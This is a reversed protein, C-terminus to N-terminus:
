HTGRCADRAGLGQDAKGTEQSLLSKRLCYRYVTAAPLRGLHKWADQEREYGFWRVLFRLVGKEDWIHDMCREFVHDSGGPQLADPVAMQPREPRNDTDAPRALVVHNRRVRYPM